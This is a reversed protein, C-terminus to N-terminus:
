YREETPDYGYEDIFQAIKLEEQQYEQRTKRRRRGFEPCGPCMMPEGGCPDWCGADEPKERFKDEDDVDHATNDFSHRAM